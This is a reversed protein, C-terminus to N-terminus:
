ITPSKMGVAAAQIRGKVMKEPNNWDSKLETKWGGKKLVSTKWLWKGRVFKGVQYSNVYGELGQMIQGWAAKRAEGGVADKWKRKAGAASTSKTVSPKHQTIRRAKTSARGEVRLIKKGGILIRRIKWLEILIGYARHFRKPKKQNSHIGTKKLAECCKAPTELYFIKTKGQVIFQQICQIRPETFVPIMDRISGLGQSVYLLHKIFIQQFSISLCSFSLSSITTALM